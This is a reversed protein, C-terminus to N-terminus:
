LVQLQKLHHVQHGADQYIIWDVSLTGYESHTLSVERDAASLASYLALNATALAEFLRVADAGSMTQERTLWKDQDFSQATFHASTLAMRVRLGLVLETQALHILLERASWKGPAYRREFQEATWGRALASIAASTERMSILPDKGELEATYPTDPLM